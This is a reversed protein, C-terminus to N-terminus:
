PSALLAHTAAEASWKAIEQQSAGYREFIASLPMGLSRMKVLSDVLEGETRKEPDRWVVEAAQDDARSDGQVKLAVRVVEEWAEGFGLQHRRVKAVLGAEAAKLADGSINVMDGLLYHPPTRTIAAMHRVDAEVAKVYGSLDSEAFEGFRTDPNESVWLRDVAAKFPEVQVGDEDIPIEMGTAWRQRFAAFQGAMLRNFVTENIRDQIPIAAAFEAVGGGHLSPKLRQNAAFEVVPVVGYPNPLPWPEDGVLRPLYEGDKKYVTLKWIEDSEFLTLHTDGATDTWEKLAAVRARRTGEEYRCIVQSPHEPVIVPAGDNGPWVSVFANGLSLATDFVLVSEADLSNPQWIQAWVDLAAVQEGGFRFGDIALRELTADVVLGTWNSVSEQMLRKYEERARQNKSRRSDLDPLPHDGERYRELLDATKRQTKLAQRMSAVLKTVREDM